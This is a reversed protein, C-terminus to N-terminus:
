LRQSANYNAPVFLRTNGSRIWEDQTNDHVFISYYIWRDTQLGGERFEAADAGIAANYVEVGNDVSAPYGHINRIVRLEDWTGGPSHWTLRVSGYDTVVGVFPEASFTALAPAGYFSAGYESVGYRAM